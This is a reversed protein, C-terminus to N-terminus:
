KYRLSSTADFYSIFNFDKKNSECRAVLTFFKCYYFLLLKSFIILKALILTELKQPVFFFFFLDIKFASNILQVGM